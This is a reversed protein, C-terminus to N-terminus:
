IIRAPHWLATYSQQLTDSYYIHNNEIYKGYSCHMLTNCIITGWIIPTPHWLATYSLEIAVSHQVDNNQLCGRWLLADAHWPTAVILRSRLIIPRKQLIDDRMKRHHLLVGRVADDSVWLSDQMSAYWSTLTGAPSSFTGKLSLFREKESFYVHCTVVAHCLRIEPLNWTSRWWWTM